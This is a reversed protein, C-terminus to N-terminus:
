GIQEQIYRLQELHKIRLDAAKRTSLGLSTSTTPLQIPFVLHHLLQKTFALASGTLAEALSKQKQQTSSGTIMPVQPLDDLSEHLGNIIM